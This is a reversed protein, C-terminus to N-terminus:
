HAGRRWARITMALIKLDLWLSWNEIYYLDYELRDSMSSQGRLGHVQAWGTVGSKVKHRAMYRPIQEKLQKVFFPREPRPGVLSMDGRLVDFLQPLEDLNWQRLFRGVRTRRPDDVTAWVPGTEEEADAVMSRFKYLSFRTGDLGIRKQKYLIPGASDLRIALAILPYFPLMVALGLLSVVIDFLRKVVVNLGRLPTERLGYLPVGEIPDSQVESLRTQFLNPVTRCGVMEKECDLMLGLIDEPSLNPEALIVEDIRHPRLLDLLREGGGLVEIGEVQRGVLSPDTSVFGVLRYTPHGQQALHRVVDRALAGTGFIALRKVGIGKKEQLHRIVRHLVLRGVSLFAIVFVVTLLVLIRSFATPPALWYQDGSRAFFNVAIIIALALLSGMFLRQFVRTSMIEQGSRYLGTAALSFVWVVVALPYIRWYAEVVPEGRDVLHVLLQFRAAYACPFALALAVLDTAVVAADFRLRRRRKSDM